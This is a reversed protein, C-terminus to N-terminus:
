SGFPRLTCIGYPSSAELTRGQGDRSIEFGWEPCFNEHPMPLSSFEVVELRPMGAALDHTLQALQGGRKLVHDSVISDTGLRKFSEYYQEHVPIDELDVAQHVATMRLTVAAQHYHQM